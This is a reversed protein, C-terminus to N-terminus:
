GTRLKLIYTLTSASVDTDTINQIGLEFVHYSHSKADPIVTRYDIYNEKIECISIKLILPCVMVSFSIIDVLM